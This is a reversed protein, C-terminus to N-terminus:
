ILTSIQLTSYAWLENFTNMPVVPCPPPSSRSSPADSPIAPAWPLCNVCWVNRSAETRYFPRGSIIDDVHIRVKNRGQEGDLARISRWEDFSQYHDVDVRRPLFKFNSYMQHGRNVATPVGSQWKPDQTPPKGLTQADVRNTGSEGSM